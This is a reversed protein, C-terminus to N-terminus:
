LRKEQQKYIQIFHRTTWFKLNIICILTLLQRLIHDSKVPALCVNDCKTKPPPHDTAEEAAVVKGVSQLPTPGTTPLTRHLTEVGVETMRHGTIRSTQPALAQLVVRAERISNNDKELIRTPLSPIPNVPLLPKFKRNTAINNTQVGVELLADRQFGYLVRRSQSFRQIKWSVLDSLKQLRERLRQEYPHHRGVSNAKGSRGM